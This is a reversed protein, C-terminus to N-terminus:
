AGSMKLLFLALGGFLVAGIIVMATLTKSQTMSKILAFQTLTGTALLASTKLDDKTQNDMISIVGQKPKGALARNLPLNCNALIHLPASSAL